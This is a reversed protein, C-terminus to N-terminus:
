IRPIQTLTRVVKVVIGAVALAVAVPLESEPPIKTDVQPQM